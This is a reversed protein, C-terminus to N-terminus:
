VFVRGSIFVALFDGSEVLFYFGPTRPDLGTQDGRDPCVTDGSSLKGSGDAVIKLGVGSFDGPQAKGKGPMPDKQM